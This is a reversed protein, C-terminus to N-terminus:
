GALHSVVSFIKRGNNASLNLPDLPTEEFVEVINVVDAQKEVEHLKFLNSSALPISSFVLILLVLIRLRVPRRVREIQM